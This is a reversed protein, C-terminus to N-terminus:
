NRANVSCQASFLNFLYVPNKICPRCARLKAMNKVLTKPWPKPSLLNLKVTRSSRLSVVTKYTYQSTSFRYCFGQIAFGKYKFGWIKCVGHIVCRWSAVTFVFERFSRGLFVFHGLLTPYLFLFDPVLRLPGM